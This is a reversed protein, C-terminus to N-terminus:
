DARLAVIPDVRSARRAPIVLAALGAAFLVLAVAAITGPDHAPVGHLLGTILRGAGLAGVIGIAVGSVVLMMGERVIMAGMRTPRDGLAVRIGLERTRQAVSHSVTGYLGVAAVLLALSAFGAFLVGWLRRQWLSEDIRQDM